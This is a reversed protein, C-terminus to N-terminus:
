RQPVQSQLAALRGRLEAVLAAPYQHSTASMSEDPGHSPFGAVPLPQTPQQAQLVPGLVGETWGPWLRDIAAIRAKRRRRDRLDRIATAHGHQDWVIGLRRQRIEERLEASTM